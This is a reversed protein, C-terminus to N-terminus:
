LTGSHLRDGAIRQRDGSTGLDVQVVVENHRGCSREATSEASRFFRMGQHIECMDKM